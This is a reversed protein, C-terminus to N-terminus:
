LSKNRRRLQAESMKRKTEESATKGKHSNSLKLRHEESLIKGKNIESLRNITEESHKKGKFANSLKLRTEESTIKGLKKKSMLLKSEESHKFGKHSTNGKAAEAIRKRSEESVIKGKNALGIKKYVEESRPKIEYSKKLSSSIKLKHEETLIDSGNGGHCKKNNLQFGWSRYLWIYHREWFKWEDTPVEDIIELISNPYKKKHAKGRNIINKTKGVYHVKDNDTLIYIFRKM